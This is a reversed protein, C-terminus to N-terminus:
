TLLDFYQPANELVLVNREDIGALRIVGEDFTFTYGDDYPFYNYSVFTWVTDPKIEDGDFDKFGRIVKIRDGQRLDSLHGNCTEVSVM